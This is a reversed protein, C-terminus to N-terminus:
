RPIDSVHCSSSPSGSSVLCSLSSTRLPYFPFTGYRSVNSGADRKDRLCPREEESSAAVSRHVRSGTRALLERQQSASRTGARGM